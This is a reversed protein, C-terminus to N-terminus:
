IHILSLMQGATLRPLMGGECRAKTVVKIKKTHVRKAHVRM